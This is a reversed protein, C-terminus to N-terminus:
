RKYNGKKDFHIESVPVGSIRSLEAALQRRMSVLQRLWVGDEVEVRVVGNEFGIVQGREAM